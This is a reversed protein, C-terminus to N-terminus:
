KKNHCIDLPATRGIFHQSKGCRSCRDILPTRHHPCHTVEAFSWILKLYPEQSLTQFARFCEPCWRHKKHIERRPQTVFQNLKILTSNSIDRGTLKHVIGVYRDTHRSAILLSSLDISQSAKVPAKRVAVKNIERHLYEIFQSTSVAHHYACRHLYSILSEVSGTEEAILPIDFM